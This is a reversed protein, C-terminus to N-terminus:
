KYIANEIEKEAELAIERDIVFGNREAWDILARISYFVPKNLEKMYEHENDTGFSPGPLRYMCHAVQKLYAFDFPLWFDYDDKVGTAPQGTLIEDPLFCYNLWTTGHPVIPVVGARIFLNFIKVADKMNEEIPGKSIPGGIYVFLLKGEPIYKKYNISM